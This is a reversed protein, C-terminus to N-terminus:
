FRNKNHVESFDEHVLYRAKQPTKPQEPGTLRLVTDDASLAAETKETNPPPRFRQGDEKQQISMYYFVSAIAISFFLVSLIFPRDEEAEVAPLTAASTVSRSESFSQMFFYSALILSAAVALLVLRKRM